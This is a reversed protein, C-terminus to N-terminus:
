LEQDRVQSGKDLCRVGEALKAAIEDDHDFISKFSKDQELQLLINHAKALWLQGDQAVGPTKKGAATAGASPPSQKALESVCSLFRSRTTQKLSDVFAPTPLRELLFKKKLPKLMTFYGHAALFTLVDVLLQDDKARYGNSCPVAAPRSGVEQTTSRSLSM